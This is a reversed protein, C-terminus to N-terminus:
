VPISERQVEITRLKPMRKPSKPWRWYVRMQTREIGGLANKKLILYQGFGHPVSRKCLPQRMPTLRSSASAAFSADHDAQSLRQNGGQGLDGLKRTVECAIESPPADLFGLM